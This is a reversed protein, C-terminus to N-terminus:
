TFEPVKELIFMIVKEGTQTSLDTHLSKIKTKTINRVVTELLSRKSELLEVRVQKILERGRAQGDSKALQMEAKSLIGRLRTIVMDDIIYTKTELPGRGMYEKEFRTVAESIAAEMQGRSLRRVRGM